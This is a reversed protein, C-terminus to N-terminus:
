ILFPTKMSESGAGAKGWSSVVGRLLYVIARDPEMPRAKPSVLSSLVLGAEPDLDQMMKCVM